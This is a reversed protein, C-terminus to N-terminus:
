PIGLPLASTVAGSGGGAGGSPAMPGGSGPTMPTTDIQPWADLASLLALALALAAGAIIRKM